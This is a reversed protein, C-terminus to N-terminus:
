GRDHGRNMRKYRNKNKFSEAKPCSQKDHGKGKCIFCRKEHKEIIRGTAYAVHLYRNDNFM